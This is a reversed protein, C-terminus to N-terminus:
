TDQDSQPFAYSQIRSGYIPMYGADRGMCRRKARTVRGSMRLMGKWATDQAEDELRNFPVTQNLCDMMNTENGEEEFRDPDVKKKSQSRDSWYGIDHAGTPATAIKSIWRPGTPTGATTKGSSSAM